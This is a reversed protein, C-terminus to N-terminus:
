SFYGGPKTSCERCQPPCLCTSIQHHPSKMDEPLWPGGLMLGEGDRGRGECRDRQLIENCVCSKCYFPIFIFLSDMKVAGTQNIQMKSTIPGSSGVEIFLALRLRFIFLIVESVLSSHRRWLLKISFAWWFSHWLCEASEDWPVLAAGIVSCEPTSKGPLPKVRPPQSTFGNVCLHRPCRQIHTVRLCLLNSRPQLICKRIFLKLTKSSLAVKQGIDGHRSPGAAWDCECVGRM